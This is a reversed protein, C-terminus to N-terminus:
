AHPEGPAPGGRELRERDKALEALTAAFFGPRERLRKRVLALALAGAGGFAATLLAAALVRHGDWFLLVVLLVALVAALGFFFLALLTWVAIEYWRLAQEELEGGALRTRTEAFAVLTRALERLSGLM